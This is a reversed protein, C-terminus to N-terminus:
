APGSLTSTVTSWANRLMPAIKKRVMKAVVDFDFMEFVFLVGFIWLLAWVDDTDM